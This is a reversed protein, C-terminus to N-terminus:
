ETVKVAIFFMHANASPLVFCLSSGLCSTPMEPFASVPCLHTEDRGFVMMMMILGDSKREVKYYMIDSPVKVVLDTCKSIKWKSNRKCHGLIRLYTM